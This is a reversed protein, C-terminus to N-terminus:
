LKSVSPVAPGAGAAALAEVHAVACLQLANLDYGGELISIIRGHCTEEAVQCLAATAWGFDEAELCIEALPDDAHADFGSSILIMEPKWALLAPIIHLAFARRFDESGTGSKLPVNLINNAIGTEHSHGTGPYFQGQHTSAFFLNPDREFIDQTGNGHHVDYDVVAIRKLSHVSRAHYAAAAVANIYCFGM